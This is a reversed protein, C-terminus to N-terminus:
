NEYDNGNRRREMELRRVAAQTDNLGRNLKGIEEATKRQYERYSSLVIVALVTIMIGFLLGLIFDLTCMM